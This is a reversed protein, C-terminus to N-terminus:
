TPVTLASRGAEGGEAVIGANNVLADVPGLDALRAASADSSVDLQFSPADLGEGRLREAAEEAKAADRGSVIVRLGLRGLQRAAEVGRGPNAGTVLPTPSSM